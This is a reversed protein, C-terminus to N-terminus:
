DAGARRRPAGGRWGSFRAGGRASRRERCRAADPEHLGIRFVRRLLASASHYLEKSAVSSVVANNIELLARLRDRERSLEQEYTRAAEFNLANDVAVAVQHAVQQMFEITEASYADPKTSGFTLGGIQRQATRLPLVCFSQVRNAALIKRLKEFPLEPGMRPAYYPRGSELAVMTPTESFSLPGPLEGTVPQDTELIHVRVVREKFDVLTLTIYDFEVLRKLCRSLESFLTALQHQTSISEAVELLAEYRAKVTAPGTTSSPSM